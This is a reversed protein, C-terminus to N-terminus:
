AAQEVHDRGCEWCLFRLAWPNGPLRHPSCMLSARPAHGRGAAHDPHRCECARPEADYRPRTLRPEAPYRLTV